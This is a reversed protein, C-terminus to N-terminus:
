LNPNIEIINNYETFYYMFWIFVIPYDKSDFIVDM